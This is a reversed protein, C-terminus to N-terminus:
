RHQQDHSSRMGDAVAAVLQRNARRDAVVACASTKKSRSQFARNATTGDGLQTTPAALPSRRAGRRLARPPQSARQRADVFPPSSTTYKKKQAGHPRLEVVVAVDCGGTTTILRGGGGPTDHTGTSRGPSVAIVRALLRRNQAGDAHTRHRGHAEVAGPRPIHPQHHNGQATDEACPWRAEATPCLYLWPRQGYIQIPGRASRFARQSGGGQCPGYRRTPSAAATRARLWPGQALRLCACPGTHPQSTSMGTHASHPPSLWRSTGARVPM